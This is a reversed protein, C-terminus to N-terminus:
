RNCTHCCSSFVFLCVSCITGDRKLVGFLGVFCTVIGCAAVVVFAIVRPRNFRDWYGRIDDTANQISDIVSTIPSLLSEDVGVVALDDIINNLDTRLGGLLWNFGDDFLSDVGRTILDNGILIFVLAVVCGVLVLPYLIGIVKAATTNRCCCQCGAGEPKNTEGCGCRPCCCRSFCFAFMFILFFVFMFAGVAAPIGKKLFYNKPDEILGELHPASYMPHYYEVRYQSTTNFFSM